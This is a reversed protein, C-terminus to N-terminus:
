TTFKVPNNGRAQNIERTSVGYINGLDFDFLVREVRILQAHGEIYPVLQMDEIEEVKEVSEAESLKGGNHPSAIKGKGFQEGAQSQREKAEGVNGAFHPSHELASFFLRATLKAISAPKRCEM